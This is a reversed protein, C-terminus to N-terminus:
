GKCAVTNNGVTLEGVLQVSLNVQKNLELPLVPKYRPTLVQATNVYDPVMGTFSTCQLLDQTNQGMESPQLWWLLAPVSIAPSPM